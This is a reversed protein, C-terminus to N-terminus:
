GRRRTRRRHPHILAGFLKAGPALHLRRANHFSMREQRLIRHKQCGDFLFQRPSFVRRLGHAGSGLLLRIDQCSQLVGINALPRRVDTRHPFRQCTLQQPRRLFDRRVTQQNQRPVVGRRLSKVFHRRISQAAHNQAPPATGAVRRNQRTGAPDRRDDSEALREVLQCLSFHDDDVAVGPRHSCCRSRCIERLGRCRGFCPPFLLM